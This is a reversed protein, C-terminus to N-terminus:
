DWSGTVWMWAGGVTTWIVIVPISMIFATWFWETTPVYGSGSIVGYGPGSSWGSPCRQPVSGWAAFPLGGRATTRRPTNM